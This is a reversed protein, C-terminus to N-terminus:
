SREEGRRRCHVADESLVAQEVSGDVLQLDLGPFEVVKGHHGFALVMKACLGGNHILQDFVGGHASQSVVRTTRCSRGERGHGAVGVVQVHSHGSLM